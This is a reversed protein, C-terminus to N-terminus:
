EGNILLNHLVQAAMYQTLDASTTNILVNLAKLLREADDDEFVLMVTDTTLLEMM